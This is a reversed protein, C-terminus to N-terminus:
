QKVKKSIFNSNMPRPYNFDSNEDDASYSNLFNLQNQNICSESRATRIMSVCADMKIGFRHLLLAIFTGARSLGGKCHVVISGGLRLSDILDYEIQKFMELWKKNPATTDRFPLHCWKIGSEVIVKGLEPVRLVEIERQDVLSIITSVDEEVIAAIDTNLDRNWGGSWSVPQYKGPCLTLGIRGSFQPHKIWSIQLPHTMSTRLEWKIPWKTTLIIM